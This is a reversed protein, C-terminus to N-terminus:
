AAQQEDPPRHLRHRRGTHVSIIIRIPKNPYDQANATCAVALAALAILKRIM